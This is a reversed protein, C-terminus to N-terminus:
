LEINQNTIRYFLSVQKTLVCRHIFPKRDSSVLLRPNAAILQLTEETRNIFNTAERQGWHKNLYELITIYDQEADPSWFIPYGM